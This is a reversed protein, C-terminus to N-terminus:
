SGFDTCLEVDAPETDTSAQKLVVFFRVLTDHINEDIITM